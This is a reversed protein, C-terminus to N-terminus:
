AALIKQGFEGSCGQQPIQLAVRFSCPIIYSTIAKAHTCGEGQDPASCHTAMVKLLTRLHRMYVLSCSTM